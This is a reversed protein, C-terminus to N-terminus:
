CLTDWYKSGSLDNIKKREFYDEVLRRAEFMRKAGKNRSRLKKKSVVVQSNNVGNLALMSM